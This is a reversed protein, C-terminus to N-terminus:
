LMDYVVFMLMGYLTPSFFHREAFSVLSKRHPITLRKFIRLLTTSTPHMPAETISNNTMSRSTDLTITVNCSALSSGIRLYSKSVGGAHHGVSCISSLTIKRSPHCNWKALSSFRRSHIQRPRGSLITSSITFNAFSGFTAVSFKFILLIGGCFFIRRRGTM